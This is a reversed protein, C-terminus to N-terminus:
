PGVGIREPASMCYPDARKDGLAWFFRPLYCRTRSFALEGAARGEPMYFGETEEDHVLGGPNGMEVYDWYWEEALTQHTDTVPKGDRTCVVDGADTIKFLPEAGEGLSRRISREADERIRGRREEREQEGEPETRRVDELRDLRRRIGGM